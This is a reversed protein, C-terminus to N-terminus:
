KVWFSLSLDRVAASGVSLSFISQFASGPRPNAPALLQGQTVGSISGPTSGASVVAPAPYCFTPGTCYPAVVLPLNLPTSPSTNVLGTVLPPSTLGLGDIFITVVSGAAAPNSQSNVTGDANLALPFSQNFISPQSLFAVPNSTAVKLTRSDSIKNGDVDSYTMTMDTESSGSIEYPAQFNVQQGSVYLLPSPTQNALVGLGQFALPFLRNVPSIAAAFPNTEFYQFRGFMTLLEGPAVATVPSLDAADLVCAIPTLTSPDFRLLDCGSVLLLTGTKSDYALPTGPPTHAPSIASGDLAMRVVFGVPLCPSPVAGNFGPLDTSGAQGGLYIGSNTLAAFTIRDTKSGSFFTSFILGSGDAKVLTVYGSPSTIEMPIPPGCTSITSSAASYNPQYSDPTTPYAPAATSGAILINGQADLAIYASVAGYKATVYTLFRTRSLDPTLSAVFQDGGCPFSLFPCGCFFTTPAGQFAGPTAQPKTSGAPPVGAVYINDQADATLLGGVGQPGAVVQTGDASLKLVFLAVVASSSTRTTSQGSVVLERKSNVVISSPATQANGGILASYVINGRPDLKAAFATAGPSQVAGATVPFDSATTTGAVYVAGSSDIDLATAASASSGRDGLTVTYFTTAGDSSLKAIYAAAYGSGTATQGALYINGSADVKAASIQVGPLRAIISAAASAAAPLTFLVALFRIRRARRHLAKGV